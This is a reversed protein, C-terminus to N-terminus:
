MKFVSHALILFFFDTALLNFIPRARGLISGRDGTGCCSATSLSIGWLPDIPNRQLKNEAFTNCHARLRVVCLEM